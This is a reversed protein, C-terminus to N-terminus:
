KFFLILYAQELTTKKLNLIHLLPIFLLCYYFTSLTYKVLMLIEHFKIISIIFELLMLTMVYQTYSSYVNSFQM